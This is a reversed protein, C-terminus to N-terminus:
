WIFNFKDVTWVNPDDSGLPNILMVPEAKKNKRRRPTIKQQNGECAKKEEKDESLAQQDQSTGLMAKQEELIRNRRSCRREM